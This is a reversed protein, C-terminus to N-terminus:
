TALEPPPTRHDRFAEFAHEALSDALGNHDKIARWGDASAAKLAAARRRSSGVDLVDPLGLLRRYAQVAQWCLRHYNTVEVRARLAPALQRAAERELQGRAQRSFTLLLVRAHPALEEALAGALRVSVYTNGTGPPAVVVQHREQCALVADHEADPRASM